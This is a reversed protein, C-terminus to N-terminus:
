PDLCTRTASWVESDGGATVANYAYYLTSGDTSLSVAVEDMSSNLEPVPQPTSFPSSRNPRTARYVDVGASGTRDSDIFVELEDATMAIHRENQPSNLEAIPTPTGFTDAATARTAVFIDLSGLRSSVMYMRLADSSPLAFFDDQASSLATYAVPVGFPQTVSARTSMYVDHQGMGGARASEFWLTLGDNSVVPSRETAISNVNPELVPTSFAASPTARMATWIDLSGNSSGTRNSFLYMTLGDASVFPGWDDTGASGVEPIRAPANFASWTMCASMTADGNASGDDDGTSGDSGGHAIDFDIRGCGVLVVLGSM